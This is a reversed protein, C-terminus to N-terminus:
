DEPAEIKLDALASFKNNFVKKECNCKETNLNVGCEPCLGQCKDACLPSIPLAMVLQDQLPHLLELTEDRYFVLGLDDTELEVEADEESEPEEAVFPTFTFAFDGSIEREFQQLCRGCAFRVSTTLGGEVEILQGSKQFRLRFEIPATFGVEDQLQHLVPFEAPECLLTQELLNDRIAKLELEM